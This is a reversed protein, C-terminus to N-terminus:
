RDQWGAIAALDVKANKMIFERKALLTKRLRIVDWWARLNRPEMILSYGLKRFEYWFLSPVSVFKWGPLNKILFYLHNRYSYFNVFRSKHKRNRAIDINSTAVKGEKASREHYAVAGSVRWSEWGAYRLRHALDADEKYFFFDQDFYEQNYMVEELAKRRYFPVAGSPGFVENLLDYQGDDVEGAGIDAVRYNKFLRLGVSDIYKTPEGDQLRLVKGTASGAMPHSDMFDVLVALFNADLVVDQNLCVAYDSRSWHLAQNHGACFGINEKHRVVSLHPYRENIIELTNDSSGNDIILLSFDKFTQNLVSRLCAEIHRSGNWTVLNISVRPM